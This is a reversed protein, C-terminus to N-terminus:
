GIEAMEASAAGPEAMNPNWARRALHPDAADGAVARAAVDGGARAHHAADRRAEAGSRQRPPSTTPAPAFPVGRIFALEDHECVALVRDSSRDAVNYRNQV